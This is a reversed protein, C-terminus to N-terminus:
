PLLRSPSTSVPPELVPEKRPDGQQDQGCDNIAERSAVKQRPHKARVQRIREDMDMSRHEHPHITSTAWSRENRNSFNPPM